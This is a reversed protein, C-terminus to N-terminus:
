DERSILEVELEHELNKMMNSIAPQSKFLKEAAGRFSGEIVIAHLVRIQEYTVTFGGIVFHYSKTILFM